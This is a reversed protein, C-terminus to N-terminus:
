PMGLPTMSVQQGPLPKSRIGAIMEKLGADSGDHRSKYLETLKNTWEAEQQQFAQKHQPSSNTYAIARAYADIILDVVTSVKALVAKSEPTEAKGEYNTKYESRQKEFGQGYLAALYYYVRPDQKSAGEYQAAKKLHSIAEDPM